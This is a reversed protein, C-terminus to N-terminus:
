VFFPKKMFYFFSLYKALPLMVAYITSKQLNAFPFVESKGALSEFASVMDSARDKPSIRYEDMTEWKQKFIGRDSYSDVQITTYGRKLAEEVWIDENSSLGGSGHSFWLCPQDELSQNAMRILIAGRDHSFLSSKSSQM